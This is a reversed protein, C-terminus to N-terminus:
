VDNFSTDRCVSLQPILTKSAILISTLTLKKQQIRISLCRGGAKVPGSLDARLTNITCLTDINECLDRSGINTKM